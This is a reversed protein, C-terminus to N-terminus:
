PERQAMHRIVKVECAASTRRQWRECWYCAQGDTIACLALSGTPCNRGGGLDVDQWRLGLIEGRRMGTTVALLWAAYLSDKRACDLFLACSPPRDLGCKRRASGLRIACPPSTVPSRAGGCRM